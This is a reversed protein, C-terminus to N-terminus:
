RGAELGTLGPAIPYLGAKAAQHETKRRRLDEVYMERVIDLIESRIMLMAREGLARTLRARTEALRAALHDTRFAEVRFHGDAGTRFRCVRRDVATRRHADLYFYVIEVEAGSILPQSARAFSGPVRLGAKVLMECVRVAPDEVDVGIACLSAALFLVLRPM